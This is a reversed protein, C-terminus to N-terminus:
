LAEICKLLSEEVPPLLLGLSDIKNTSLICNSRKAKLKLSDIEVFEWNPNIHNNKSLNEVIFKANSIGPNVVNYIGPLTKYFDNKIFQDVFLIFDELCTYSNNFNVLKPYKLIKNLINKSTNFSCFPMRVRLISSKSTTLLLESLHKTKSYFSSQENFFGFNPIDEETYEKEYGSYICGSSVNILWANNQNCFTNLIVPLKTNYLFCNEKDEECADVNPIGTYGSCNIIIVDDLLNGNFDTFYSRIFKKLQIPSFYDLEKRSVIVSKYNSQALKKHLPIGIFGKGLLLINKM